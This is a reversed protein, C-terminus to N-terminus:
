DNGNEEEEPSELDKETINKTSEERIQKLLKSANAEDQFYEAMNDKGIWKNGDYEYTRNNPREILGYQIGLEMLEKHQNIVGQVYGIDFECTKDRSMSVKHKDIRAKIRHGVINKSEDEIKTDAATLRAFNIM